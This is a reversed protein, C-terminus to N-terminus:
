HRHKGPAGRHAPGRGRPPPRAETSRSERSGSLATILVGLVFARSSPAELTYGYCHGIKRITRLSLLFLLPIDLLTTWVGGAGTAAGEATGLVDATWGTQRALRDCEELPRHRLEALDDVGARRKIDEQGALLDALDDLKEIAVEALREPILREVVRAVPLTITQWIETFPNPPLAKWEAIRRVQEAEYETLRGHEARARWDDFSRRPETPPRPTLRDAM